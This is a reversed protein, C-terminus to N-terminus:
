ESLYNTINRGLYKVEKCENLSFDSLSFVPFKSQRDDGRRVVLINSKKANYKIDHDLELGYQKNLLEQLGATCPNWIVSRSHM